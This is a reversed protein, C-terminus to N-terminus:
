NDEKVLVYIDQKTVVDNYKSIKKTIETSDLPSVSTQIVNAIATLTEIPHEFNESELQQLLEKVPMAIKMVGVYYGSDFIDQTYTELNVRKNMTGEMQLKKSHRILLLAILVLLLKWTIDLYIEVYNM